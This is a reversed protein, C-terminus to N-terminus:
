RTLGPQKYFDWTCQEQADVEAGCTMMTSVVGSFRISSGSVSYVGSYSNCGGNGNMASGSGLFLSITTGPVPVGNMNMAALTWSTNLLPNSQNVVITVQRTEMSGDTHQVRMEYTTTESPCVQQSGQGTAPFQQYNAGQPYVWVAQINSVDWRLTTCQGQEITTRDAWFSISPVPTPL